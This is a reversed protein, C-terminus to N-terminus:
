RGVRLRNRLNINSHIFNYSDLMQTVHDYVKHKRNPDRITIALCFEQGLSYNNAEAQTTVADRYLGQIKLYWKKPALLAKDKSGPTMEELKVAYKKVPQYKDGYKLLMRERAFEGVNKVRYRSPYLQDYLVNINGDLGLPNPRPRGNQKFRKKLSDYTGLMVELDSQCYEAGQNSDLLPNTVLTAIIEGYYHGNEILSQPFPFDTIEIFNGKELNDRMIITIEYQDNFLIDDIKGPIGYGMQKVRENFPLDLTAPYKASHIILTKILLPDFEGELQHSLGAALGAVRPTSFSTGINRSIQGDASFSKVGEFDIRGNSPNVGANGGVHSLDPKNIYSPGKGIRSFPSPHFPEAQEFGTRKHSVSGVVLSLVTDASRSIRSRPLGRSFNKCNGASKCILIAFEQQIADLFTGIDSFQYLDAETDLGLSLNWVQIDTNDEVAERIYDILDGEEVEGKYLDSFVTADFLRCGELGTLSDKELEDGYVLVGAVFTGHERRTRDDPVKKLTRELLWPKLHPIQAIGSDLIGVIPYDVGSQPQKITIEEADTNFNDATVTYKPMFTMSELAEFAEIEKISDATVKALRFITLEPTYQISRAEIKLESCLSTFTQNVARNVEFDKFNILKVKLPELDANMSQELEIIPEFQTLETVAAVGKQYRVPRDLRRSVISSDAPSNIKVLLEAENTFGILNYTTGTNFLGAIDARHSKAIAAENLQVKVVAPIFEREKKRNIFSDTVEKLVEQILEAREELEEMSLLAWPPLDKNGMGETRRDDTEVRKSFLKVPLNKKSSADDTNM